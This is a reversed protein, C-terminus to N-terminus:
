SEQRSLPQGMIIPQGPCLEKQWQIAKEPFLLIVTSGMNFRGLEQGKKFALQKDLDDYRWHRIQREKTPTIQGQWVTEMSGVFIAGVMILVMAGFETEFYMILRENRAFLNNVVHTTHQNVAFLKGPVFTMKTLRGDVPMHIRHYDKPSLYLTSFEGTKFDQASDEDGALLDILRYHHGKAQLLQRNEITGYQSIFGDVPSIIKSDSIPRADEKLARTFFENFHNFEEPDQKISSQMDVKFMHIFIRILNNKWLTSEIRTLRYVISTLFHQPLIYQPLVKIYEILRVVPNDASDQEPQQNKM